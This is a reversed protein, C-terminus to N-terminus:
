RSSYFTSEALRVRRDLSAPVPNRERLVWPLGTLADIVGLRCSGDKLSLSAIRWTSALASSAPRRLWVSWLANRVQRRHRRSVNRVSSPYHYAVLDEAYALRWGNRLMDMALVEEEGGVGFHRNFGGAQLFASARIVAGCAVFSTIPVGVLNTGDHGDFSLPSTAMLRSVPDLEEEPGVLLRAALLGLDPFSEFRDVALALAGPAWWSDDDSFAVFPTRAMQVGVNRGAAGLNRGLPVVQIRPDFHRAVNVTDDTSGNDVVIM